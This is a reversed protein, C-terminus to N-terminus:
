TTSAIYADDDIGASARTIPFLAYALTIASLWTTGGWIFSALVIQWPRAFRDVFHGWLLHLFLGVPLAAAAAPEM